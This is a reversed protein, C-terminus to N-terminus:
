WTRVSATDLHVFDSSAYYGVGGRQLAIAADRLEAIPIDPLRVDIARGQIHQSNSAVGSSRSRLMANTQSTRYGCIVHYPTRTGTIRALDHLLDLLQPDIPVVDGTRWDRLVDNIRALAEPVYRGDQWYVVSLAENTHTHVLAVERPAGGVSLVEAVTRVPRLALLAAGTVLGALFRRRTPASLIAQPECDCSEFV